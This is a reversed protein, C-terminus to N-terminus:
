LMRIEVDGRHGRELVGALREGGHLGVERRQPVEGQALRGGLRQGTGVHDEECQRVACGAGDRRLKGIVHQDDVAAGIM